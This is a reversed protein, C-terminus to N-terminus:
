FSDYPKPLWGKFLIVFTCFLFIILKWEIIIKSFYCSILSALSQFKNIRIYVLILTCKFPPPPPHTAVERLLSHFSVCKANQMHNEESLIYRMCWFRVKMCTIKLSGQGGGWFFLYIFKFFSSFLIRHCNRSIPSIPPILDQSGHFLILSTM